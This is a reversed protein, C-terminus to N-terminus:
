PPIDAEKGRRWVRGMGYQEYASWEEPPFKVACRM